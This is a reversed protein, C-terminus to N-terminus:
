HFNDLLMIDLTKYDDISYFFWQGDPSINLGPDSTPDHPLAAILKTQHTAFDLFQISVPNAKKGIGEYRKIYYIGKATVLWDGFSILQPLDLVQVESSGDLKSQFLGITYYGYKNYYLSQGDPSEVAEYGGNRTVQFPEGGNVSMKWVQWSGGRDSAFYIWKGDRSWSPALDNTNGSTLQRATGGDSSILYIHPRGEPRSDFAIQRNDPSWRPNGTVPGGFFTLQTQDSGDIASVWIERSGSRNSEFTIKMGDSSINPHEDRRSSGIIKASETGASNASLRWINTDVSQQSYVLRGGSRAIGPELADQGAGELAVVEGGERPIRWLRFSGSRNSSFVIEKGDYTWSVGSLRRNDFTLQRVKRDQLGVV